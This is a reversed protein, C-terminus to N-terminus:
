NFYVVCCQRLELYLRTEVSAGDSLGLKWIIALIAPSVLIACNQSWHDNRRFPSQRTGNALSRQTAMSGQTKSLSNGIAQNGYSRLSRQYRLSRVFKHGCVTLSGQTVYNGNIVVIACIKSTQRWFGIRVIATFLVFFYRKFSLGRDSFNMSLRIEKSALIAAMASISFEKDFLLSSLQRTRNALSRQTAVSGQTKSLSNKIEAIAVIRADFSLRSLMLKLSLPSEKLLHKKTRM